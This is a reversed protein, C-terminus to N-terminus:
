YTTDFIKIKIKFFLIGRDKRTQRGWLSVYSFDTSFEDRLEDRSLSVLGLVGAPNHKGVIVRPHALFWDNLHALFFSVTLDQGVPPGPQPNGLETFSSGELVSMVSVRCFVSWSDM